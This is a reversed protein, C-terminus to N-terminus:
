LTFQSTLEGSREGRTVKVIVKWEGKREKSDKVIDNIAVDFGNCTATAGDASASTRVTQNYTAQNPATITLECAADDLAENIRARVQVQDGSVGAMTIAGEIPNNLEDDGKDKDKDSDKDSDDKDKTKGGTQESDNDHELPTIAYNGNSGGISIMVVGILVAFISLVIVVIVATLAIKSNKNQEVKAM